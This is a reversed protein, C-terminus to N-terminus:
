SLSRNGSRRGQRSYKDTRLSNSTSDDSFSEDKEIKIFDEDEKKVEKVKSMKAFCSCSFQRIILDEGLMQRIILYRSNNMIHDTWSLSDLLNLMIYQDSLSYILACQPFRYM